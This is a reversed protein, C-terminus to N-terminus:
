LPKIEGREHDIAWSEACETCCTEQHDCMEEHMVPIESWDELNGPYLKGDHNFSPDRLRIKVTGIQGEMM